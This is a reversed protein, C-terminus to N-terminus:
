LYDQNSGADNTVYISRATVMDFDGDKLGTAPVATTTVVRGTSVAGM